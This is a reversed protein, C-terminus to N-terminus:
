RLTPRRTRAAFAAGTILLAFGGILVATTEPSPMSISFGEDTAPAVQVSVAEASRAAEASRVAEIGAGPVTAAAGALPEASRVAEIGAGPAGAAVEAGPMPAASRVAEIGAGPVETAAADV